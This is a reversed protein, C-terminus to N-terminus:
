YFSCIRSLYSYKGMRRREDVRHRQRLTPLLANIVFLVANWESMRNAYRARPIAHNNRDVDRFPHIRSDSLPPIPTHRYPAVTWMLGARCRHVSMTRWQLHALHSFWHLSMSPWVFNVSLSSMRLPVLNRKPCDQKPLILNMAKPNVAWYSFM